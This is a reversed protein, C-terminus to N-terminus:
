TPAGATSQADTALGLRGAIQRRLEPWLRQLRSLLRNDWVLLGDASQIVVGAGSVADDARVALDRGDCGAQQALDHGLRQGFAAFAAPSIKVVFDRGTSHRLADAALSLVIARADVDPTLLRQRIAEHISQLLAEIRASRLRETEVAVTALITEKRHAAAARAQRRREELWKGADAAAAATISGAEADARSLVEDGQRKADALIEACLRDASNSNTADM